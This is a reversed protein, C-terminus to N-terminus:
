LLVCVTDTTRPLVACVKQINGGGRGGFLVGINRFKFTEHHQYRRVFLLMKRLTHLLYMKIDGAPSVGRM